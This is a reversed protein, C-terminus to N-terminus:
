IGICTDSHIIAQNIIPEYATETSFVHLHLIAMLCQNKLIFPDNEMKERWKEFVLMPCVFTVSDCQELISVQSM